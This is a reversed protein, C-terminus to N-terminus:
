NKLNIGKLATAVKLSWQKKTKNQTTLPNFYKFPSTGGHSGQPTAKRKESVWLFSNQNEEYKQSIIVEQEQSCQLIGTGKPASSSISPRSYNQFLNGGKLGYSGPPIMRGITLPNVPFSDGDPPPPPHPLYFPYSGRYNIYHNRGELRYSGQPGMFFDKFHAM